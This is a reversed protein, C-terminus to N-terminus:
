SLRERVKRSVESGEVRGKVQPMLHGMVKGMDGPGSAGIAAIADDIMRDLAAEDIAEPLYEDIITAETAEREALEERGGTRYQEESERRQKRARSLVEIVDGEELPRGLEIQRNKLDNALMRLTALRLKDGAKLAAKQEERIRDQIDSM